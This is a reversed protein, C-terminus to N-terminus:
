INPVDSFNLYQSPKHLTRWIEKVKVTDHASRRNGPVSGASDGDREVEPISLCDSNGSGVLSTFIISARGGDAFALRGSVCLGDSSELISSSGEVDRVVSMVVGLIDESEGWGLFSTGTAGGSVPVDVLLSSETTGMSARLDALVIRAAALRLALGDPDAGDFLRFRWDLWAGSTWAGCVM